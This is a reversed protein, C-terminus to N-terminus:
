CEMEKNVTVAQYYSETYENDSMMCDLLDIIKLGSVSYHTNFKQETIEEFHDVFRTCLDCLKGICSSDFSMDGPSTCAFWLLQQFKDLLLRGYFCSLPASGSYPGNV